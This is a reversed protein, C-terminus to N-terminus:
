TILSKNEVEEVKNKTAVKKIKTAVKNPNGKVWPEGNDKDRKACSKITGQSVKFKQSLKKFTYKGSEYAKKITEKNAPARIDEM